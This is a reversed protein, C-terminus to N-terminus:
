AKVEVFGLSEIFGILDAETVGSEMLAKFVDAKQFGNDTAKKLLSAAQKKLREADFEKKEIEINRDAWVWINNLPDELWALTAAKKEDYHKKDKGSFKGQKDDYKFGSFEKFFEISVKKNVPTLVELIRNIYDIDETAHFAVFVERSLDMLAAKTVKEASRLDNLRTNFRSDFAVKNFM